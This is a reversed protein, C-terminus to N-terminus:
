HECIQTDTSQVNNVYRIDFDSFVKPCKRDDTHSRLSQTECGLQINVSRDNGRDCETCGVCPSDVLSMNLYEITEMQTTKALQRYM